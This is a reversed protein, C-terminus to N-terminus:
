AGPKGTQVTKLVFLMIIYAGAVVLIGIVAWLLNKKAATVQEDNGQSTIFRYGSVVVSILALIFAVSLFWKLIVTFFEAFTKYKAVGANGAFTEVDTMSIAMSILPFFTILLAAAIAAARGIRLALPKIM